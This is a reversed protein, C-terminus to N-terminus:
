QGRGGGGLPHLSNEVGRGTRYKFDDVEVALYHHLAPIPGLHPHHAHAPGARHFDVHLIDGALNVDM